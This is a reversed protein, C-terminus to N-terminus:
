AVALSVRDHGSLTSRLPAPFLVFVTGANFNGVAVNSGINRARTGVEILHFAVFGFISLARMRAMLLLGHHGVRELRTRPYCFVM